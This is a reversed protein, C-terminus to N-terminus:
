SRGYRIVEVTSRPKENIVGEPELISRLALTIQGKSNRATTFYEADEPTLELTATAGPLHPTESNEDFFADLALVKVDELLLQFDTGGGGSSVETYYIDVRDGPLIFGGSATEPSVRTTIARRGPALIAAMMGSSGARVIKAEIVPEGPVFQTRVVSGAIDEITVTGDVLYQEALAKEPWDVWRLNEATIRQGRALNADATLVRTTRERVPEPLAVVEEPSNGMMLFFAVGGAIAALALVAIKSANM